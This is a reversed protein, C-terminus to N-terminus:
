YYFAWSALVKYWINHVAQKARTLFDHGSSEVVGSDRYKWQRVHSWLDLPTVWYLTNVYRSQSHFVSSFITGSFTDTSYVLMTSYLHSLYQVLTYWLMYQQSLYWLLYSVTSRQSKLQMNQEYDGKEKKAETIHDVHGLFLILSHAFYAILLNLPWSHGGEEPYTSYWYM